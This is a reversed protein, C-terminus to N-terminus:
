KEIYENVEEVIGELSENAKLFVEFVGYQLCESVAERDDRNTFVIVKASKGWEDERLQKLFEIGDVKPMMLDLLLVDPKERIAVELGEEGNKALHVEFGESSFKTEFAKRQVDDDEILLIRKM